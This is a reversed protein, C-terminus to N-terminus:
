RAELAETAVAAPHLVTGDDQAITLLASRFRKERARTELYARALQGRWDNEEPREEAWRRALSEAAAHDIPASV